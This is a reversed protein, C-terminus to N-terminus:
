LSLEGNAEKVMTFPEDKVIMFGDLDVFEIGACLNMASSIGLSTEIMCGVMTHMDHKVAENLLRLGNLYGGAKMLKMNIGHFQHQLTHFDAHHCVSEDAILLFPAHKKVHVYEAEMGAPMPQEIADINYPKLEQMFAILAEPNTWGENADIILPQSSVATLAQLLDHAHEANVKLKLRKFRALHHTLYFAAIEDAPMIPLSFSTAVKLPHQIGLFDTVTIDNQNCVFHVYASEIGFRL